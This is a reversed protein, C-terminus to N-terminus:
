FNRLAAWPLLGNYTFTSKKIINNTIYLLYSRFGTPLRFNGFVACFFSGSIVSFLLFRTNKEEIVVVSGM